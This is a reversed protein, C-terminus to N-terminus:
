IGTNGCEVLIRLCLRKVQAPKRLLAPELDNVLVGVLDAARLRLTGREVLHKGSGLAALKIDHQHPSGITEGAANPVKQFHEVRQVMQADLEHREPFIKVGTARKSPRFKVRRVM